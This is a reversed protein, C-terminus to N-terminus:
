YRGAIIILFVVPQRREEWECSRLPFISPSGPKKNCAQGLAGPYYVWFLQPNVCVVIRTMQM